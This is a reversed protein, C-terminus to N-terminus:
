KLSPSYTGSGAWNVTIGGAQDTSTQGSQNKGSCSALATTCLALGLAAGIWKSNSM